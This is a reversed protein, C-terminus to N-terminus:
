GKLMELLHGADSDAVKDVYKELKNRPELQAFFNLEADLIATAGVRHYFDQFVFNQGINTLIEGHCINLEAEPFQLTYDAIVNGEASKSVFYYALADPHAHIVLRNVWFNTLKSLLQLEGSRDKLSSSSSLGQVLKFFQSMRRGAQSNLDFMTKGFFIFINRKANFGQSKVAPKHHESYSKEALEQM